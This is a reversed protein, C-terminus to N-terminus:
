NLQADTSPHIKELYLITKYKSIGCQGLAPYAKRKCAGTLKFASNDSKSLVENNNCYWTCSNVATFSPLTLEYNVFCYLLFM